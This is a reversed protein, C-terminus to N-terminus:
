LGYNWTNRSKAERMKKYSAKLESKALKMPPQEHLDACSFQGYTDGESKAVILWANSQEWMSQQLESRIQRLIKTKRKWDSKFAAAPSIAQSEWNTSVHEHMIHNFDQVSKRDSRADM